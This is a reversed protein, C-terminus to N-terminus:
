RGLIHVCGGTKAWTMFRGTRVEHVQEGKNWIFEVVKSHCYILTVRGCFTKPKNQHIFEAVEKFSKFTKMIFVENM